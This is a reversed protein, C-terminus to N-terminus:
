RRTESRSMSAAPAVFKEGSRVLVIGEPPKADYWVKDYKDADGEKQLASCDGRDNNWVYNDRKTFVHLDAGQLDVPSLASEPGSGSHVRMVKTAALTGTFSVVKEWMGNDNMGSYAVHYLSLGNLNVAVTGENKLDVWEAGLQAASVAGRRTRDKGAPNPKIRVSKMVNM